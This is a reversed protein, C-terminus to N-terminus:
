NSDTGSSGCKICNGSNEMDYQQKRVKELVDLIEVANRGISNVQEGMIKNSDSITGIIGGRIEELERIRQSTTTIAIDYQQKLEIYKEHEARITADTRRNDYLGRVWVGVAILAITIIFIYVINKTENM